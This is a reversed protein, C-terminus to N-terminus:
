VKAPESDLEQVGLVLCGLFSVREEDGHQWHYCRLGGDYRDLLLRMRNQHFTDTRAASGKLCKAGPTDDCAFLHGALMSFSGFGAILHPALGSKKGLQRLLVRQRTASEECWLARASPLLFTVARPTPPNDRLARAKPWLICSGHLPSHFDGRYGAQVLYFVPTARQSDGARRAGEIFRRRAAAKTAFPRGVAQTSLLEIIEAEDTLPRFYTARVIESLCARARKLPSPDRLLATLQEGTMGEMWSKGM